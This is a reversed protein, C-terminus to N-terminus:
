PRLRLPPLPRELEARVIRHADLKQRKPGSM